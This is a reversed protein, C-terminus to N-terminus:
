DVGSIVLDDVMHHFFDVEAIVSKVGSVVFRARERITFLEILHVGDIRAPTRIM